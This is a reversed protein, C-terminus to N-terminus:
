LRLVYSVMGLLEPLASVVLEMGYKTLNALLSRLLAHIAMGIQEPLANVATPLQTGYRDM